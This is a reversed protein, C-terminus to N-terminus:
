RSFDVADRLYAHISQRLYPDLKALFEQAQEATNAGGLVINGNLNINIEIPPLQEKQAPEAPASAVPMIQPIAVPPLMPLVQM